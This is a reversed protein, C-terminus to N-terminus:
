RKALRVLWHNIYGAYIAFVPKVPLFVGILVGDLFSVHNPTILLRDQKLNDLNGQIKVHFLIKLFFKLIKFLM